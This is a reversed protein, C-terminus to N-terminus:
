ISAHLYSMGDTESIVYNFELIHIIDDYKRRWIASNFSMIQYFLGSNRVSNRLLNENIMCWKRCFLTKNALWLHCIRFDAILASDVTRM